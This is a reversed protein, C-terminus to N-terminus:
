VYGGRQYAFVHSVNLTLEMRIVGNCVLCNVMVSTPGAFFVNCQAALICIGYHRQHVVNVTKAFHRNADNLNLM